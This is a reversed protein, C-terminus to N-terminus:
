EGGSFIVNDGPRIFAGRALSGPVIDAVSTNPEVSTVRLRAIMEGGRKVVLKSNPSVGAKDGKDIVVFNWAQNVAQVEAEIGPRSVGALRAKEKDELLRSRTEIESMKNQLTDNLTQLEAVKAQADRLPAALPDETPAGQSADTQDVKNIINNLRVIEKDKDAVTATLTDVQGKATDLDARTTTLQQETEQLSAQTTALDAKTKTLDATLRRIEEEDKTYRTIASDRQNRMDVFNGKTKYVLYASGISCLVSVVLFIRILM